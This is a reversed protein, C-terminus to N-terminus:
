LAAIEVRQANWDASLRLRTLAGLTLGRPQRGELIAETLKPALYALPLLGALYHNCLGERRALEKASAVEGRELQAAWSRALVVARVLARDVRPSSAQVGDKPEILLVGQRKRMHFELRLVGGDTADDARESPADPRLAGPETVLVLQDASVTLRRVAAAVRRTTEEERRWGAALLPELRECLFPELV